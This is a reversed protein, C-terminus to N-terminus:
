FKFCPTIKFNSFESYQDKLECKLNDSELNAAEKPM